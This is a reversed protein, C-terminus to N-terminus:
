GCVADTGIIRHVVRGELLEEVSPHWMEDHPKQFLEDLLAPAVGQARFFARDKEQEAAVDIGPTMAQLRYRHFGLRGDDGLYRHRGAIFATTCASRCFSYVCTDLEREDILRAVGRAEFVRGGDSELIIGEIDPNDRLVTKLDNTLGVDFIGKVHVMRGGEVLEVAYAPEGASPPDTEAQLGIGHQALSFLTVFVAILSAIMTGQIVTVRQVAATWRTERSAILYRDCARLLGVIQWPYVILCGIILYAGAAIAFISVREIYASATMHMLASALAFPLAFNIWFSRALSQRGRWHARLYDM